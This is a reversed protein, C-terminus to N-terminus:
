SSKEGICCMWNKNEVLHTQINVYGAKKLLEELEQPTHLKLNGAKVYPDNRDKFSQSAYMENIIMIRGSPKLVRKIESFNQLLNPWFYVTEVALAWDFKNDEFPIKEVSANHIEVKGSDILGKNFEISWNVCDNSYDIGFVKGEPALLALRNVTRGGGCGIDLIISDQKIDIKGLGWSTLEYHNINMEDAVLKGAEGVPKRCQNMKRSLESM